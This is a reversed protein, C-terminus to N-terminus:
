PMNYNDPFPINKWGTVECQELDNDGFSVFSGDEKMAVIHSSGAAIAVINSLSRTDRLGNKECGNGTGVVTGDSKLGITFEYGTAIAVINRWDSVEGQEKQNHGTSVVTGDAKLGITFNYGSSISVINRWNGVKIYDGTAVVTGDAKLGVTHDWGASIAVIDTWGSVNCQGYTNAGVAVVTGDSKLGVTHHHGASVSVLDSWGSIDCQGDDNYGVAVATGDGKLGVTHLGGAEVSVINRWNQVDCQGNGTYGQAIVTGDSRLGVTHRRGASFTQHQQVLTGSSNDPTAPATDAPETIEPIEPIIPTAITAQPTTEEPSSITVHPISINASFKQFPTADSTGVSVKCVTLAVIATMVVALVGALIAPLHSSRGSSTQIGELQAAFAEMTRTRNEPQIAMANQLAALVQPPLAQLQPLDWRICDSDLRDVANPPIVRTLSYYITAAMAYVDTWSGSGGRQVYQELPSFGGKAVRASSTGSNVNTDKAAGLDLIKLTADPLLMLNDPSIDRHIVGSRHAQALSYITPLFIRRAQAWNLPATKEVYTKLTQGNIYEMVIYTTENQQFVDVVRAVGPINQLRAMKEAEKLCLAMGNSRAAEAQPTRYWTVAGNASNRGAQGSPFYEKIAVKSRQALDWGIYTIGFGGQGLITGVVYRGYLIFGPRLSFEPFPATQPDYGCYPCPYIATEEMCHVCHNFNM